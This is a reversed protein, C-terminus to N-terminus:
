IARIYTTRSFAALAMSTIPGFGSIKQLRASFRSRKSIAAVGLEAMRGDIMDLCLKVPTRTVGQRRLELARPRRHQKARSRWRHRDPNKDALRAFRRGETQVGNEAITAHSTQTIEVLELRAHTRCYALKIDHGPKLLRNYVAHGDVQLSGASRLM